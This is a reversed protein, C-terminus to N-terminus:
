WGVLGLISDGNKMGAGEFLWHKENVCTWDAVGNYPVTSRAGMLTAPNPGHEKWKGEFRKLDPDAIGFKGIRSIARNPVAAANPSFEIRGDCSNGSFFAANVGATVAAKVHNFM